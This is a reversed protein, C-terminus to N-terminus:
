EKAQDSIPDQLTVFTPGDCPDRSLRSFGLKSISCALLKTKVGNSHSGGHHHSRNSQSEKLAENEKRM